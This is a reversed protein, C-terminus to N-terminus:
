ICWLHSSIPYRRSSVNGRYVVALTSKTRSYRHPQFVMRLWHDPFKRRRDGVFARIEAPHHAYDEVVTLEEKEFLVSQRREMGPFQSFDIKTLDVGMAESTAIVASQNAMM